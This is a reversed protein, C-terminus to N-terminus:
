PSPPTAPCSLRLEEFDRVGSVCPRLRVEYLVHDVFRERAELELGAPPALLVQSHKGVMAFVSQGGDARARLLPGLPLPQGFAQAGNGDWSVFAPYLERLNAHFRGRAYVNGHQLAGAQSLWFSDEIAPQASALARAAEAHGATIRQHSRAAESLRSPSLAVAACLLAAFGARSAVFAARPLHPGLHWALGVQLGNLLAAPVLYNPAFHKLVIAIWAAQLAGTAVLVRAARVHEAPGRRLVATGVGVAMVIVALTLWEERLLSAASGALRTTDVLGVPGHGYLRTRTAMRWYLRVADPLQTAIPLVGVALAGAGALALVRRGRRDLAAWPVLACPAFVVKTAVGLGGLVGLAAATRTGGM